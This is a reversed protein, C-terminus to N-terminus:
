PESPCPCPFECKTLENELKQLMNQLKSPHIAQEIIQVFTKLFQEIPCPYPNDSKRLYDLYSSSTDPMQTKVAKDWLNYKAIYLIQLEDTNFRKPVMRIRGDYKEFRDISNQIFYTILMNEQQALFNDISRSRMRSDYYYYM